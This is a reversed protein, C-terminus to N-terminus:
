ARFVLRASHFDESHAGQELWKTVRNLMPLIPEGIHDIGQWGDYYALTGDLDVGIWGNNSM